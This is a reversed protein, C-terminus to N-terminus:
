RVIMTYKKLKACPHLGAKDKIIGEIGMDEGLNLYRIDSFEEMLRHSLWYTLGRIRRANKQFYCCITDPSTIEGVIFSLLAGDAVAYRIFHASPDYLDMFRCFARYECGYFCDACCHENCWEQFCGHMRRIETSDPALYCVDPYERLFHNMSGRKTKNINGSVSLYEPMRYVYDSMAEDYSFVPMLGNQEAFKRYEGIEEEMIFDFVPEISRSKCFQLIYDAPQDIPVGPKRLIFFDYESQIGRGCVAIAGDFVQYCYNFREVWAYILSFATDGFRNQLRFDAFDEKADPTIMNFWEM